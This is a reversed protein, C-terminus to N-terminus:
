GPSRRPVPPERKEILFQYVEGERRQAIVPHGTRDSWRVMEILSTPDDTVLLVAEGPASRVVAETLRALVASCELGVEVLEIDPTKPWCRIRRAHIQEELRDRVAAIPELLRPPDDPRIPRVRAVWGEAYPADNLLRPRREVESNRELLDADVPLRVPGTLRLSEATALSRGREVRGSVPRFVLRLFPGAFAGFTAMVGVRATGDAEGKWWVETELDYLRDDPASCGAIEV